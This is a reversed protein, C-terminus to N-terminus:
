LIPASQESSTIGPPLEIIKLNRFHIEGGESEICLYGKKQSSKSIGNVFKGNIALKIVGDVCVIDYANWIGHDKVRYELGKSREGRANDPITTLGNVGWMEGSIYDKIQPEGDKKKHINIWDPDLIQVEIGNPYPNGEKVISGNSWVFVGSNGGPDIHKWEIHLVFNEYQKESRVVGMPEGSDILLDGRVSWTEKKTNVNIWKLPERKRNNQSIVSELKQREGFEFEFNSQAYCLNDVFLILFALLLNKM